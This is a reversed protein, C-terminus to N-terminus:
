QASYSQKEYRKVSFWQNSRPEFYIKKECGEVIVTYELPAIATVVSPYHAKISVVRDITFVGERLIIKRPKITGDQTFVADVVLPVRKYIM